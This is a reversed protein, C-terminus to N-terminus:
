TCENARGKPFVPAAVIKEGSLHINMSKSLEPANGMNSPNTNEGHKTKDVEQGKESNKKISDSGSQKRSEIAIEKITEELKDLRTKVEQLQLIKEHIGEKEAGRGSITAKTLYVM